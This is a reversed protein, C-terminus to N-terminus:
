LEDEDEDENEDEQNEEKEKNKWAEVENYFVNEVAEHAMSMIGEGDLSEYENVCKELLNPMKNIAILNEMTDSMDIHGRLEYSVQTIGVIKYSLYTLKNLSIQNLPIDKQDSKQLFKKKLEEEQKEINRFAMKGLEWQTYNELNEENNKM